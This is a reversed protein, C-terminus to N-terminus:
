NDVLVMRGQTSRHPHCMPAEGAAKVHVCLLFHADISKSLVTRLLEIELNIPM